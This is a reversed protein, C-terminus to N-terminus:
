WFIIMLVILILFFIMVFSVIVWYKDSSIREDTEDEKNECPEENQLKEPYYLFMPHYNKSPDWEIFNDPIKRLFYLKKNPHKQKRWEKLIEKKQKEKLLHKSIDVACLIEREKKDPLDNSIQHFFIEDNKGKYNILPYEPCPPLKFNFTEKWDISYYFNKLFYKEENFVFDHKKYVIAPAAESDKQFSAKGNRILYDYSIKAVMGTGVPLFLYIETGIKESEIEQNDYYEINFKQSDKKWENKLDDCFIHIKPFDKANSLYKEIQLIFINIQRQNEVIKVIEM